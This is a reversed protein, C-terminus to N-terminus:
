KIMKLKMIEPQIIKYMKKMKEVAWQKLEDTIKGDDLEVYFRSWSKGWNEQFKVKQGLEKELISELKKFNRILKINELKSSKEFHFEVWFSNRPQGHFALEYHLGSIGTKLAYYSRKPPSPFGLDLVDKLVNKIESFFEMYEKQTRTIIKTEKEKSKILYEEAEPLPIIKTSVIAINDKDLQHPTLKICSIDMGIKQNLWLATSAVEPRFEKAVLIIKPTDDIEEFDSNSIFTNIEEAIEDSSKKLGKNTLYSHREKIIQNLNFTSCYAAYKIAQLDVYKGSDDRKLEILVLKGNKDIALVDLRERTKDFQAFETTIILLDEGMLEPYEEVWKEIDQRELIKHQSFNTEDV